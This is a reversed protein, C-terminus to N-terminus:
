LIFRLYINIIDVNHIHSLVYMYNQIVGRFKKCIRSEKFIVYINTYDNTYDVFINQQYHIIERSDRLLAGGGESSVAPLLANVFLVLM